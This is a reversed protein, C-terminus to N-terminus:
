PPLPADMAICGGRCDYPFPSLDIVTFQADAFRPEVPAALEDVGPPLNIYLPPLKAGSASTASVIVQLPISTTGPDRTVHAIATPKTERSKTDVVANETMPAAVVRSASITICGVDHCRSTLSTGWRALRAQAQNADRPVLYYNQHHWDASVSFPRFFDLGLTGELQGYEWRRDDYPMFGIRERTVSGATVREAIGDQSVARHSGVEDVLTANWELPQLKAAAWHEHRLQSPTDGLDLHLDYSQGDVDATVLRRTVLDAHGRTGKFYSLVQAGAPAHFAEQTQLWAVGRERDFGFVLSDAIVDRGLIGHIRRRATDFAHEESVRVTDLSVRLDGVALNTLQAYFTPHTVDHEDTVRPGLHARFQGEAIVSGDVMSMPADPDIAFLYPGRGEVYVPTVLKGDALPDVLPLTWTDGPSFGPPAGIACGSALVLPLIFKM